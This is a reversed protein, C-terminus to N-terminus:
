SQPDGWAFRGLFDYGQPRRAIWMVGAEAASTRNIKLLRLLQPPSPSGLSQWFGKSVCLLGSAADGLPAGLARKSAAVLREQVLYGASGGQRISEAHFRSGAAVVAGARIKKIVQLIEKPPIGSEPSYFVLIPYRANRASAADPLFEWEGGAAVFFENLKAAHEASARGGGRWFPVAVVSAGGADVGM